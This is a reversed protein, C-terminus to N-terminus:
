GRSAGLGVHVELCVWDGGLGMHAELCTWRGGWWTYRWVPGGMVVGRCTYRWLPRGVLGGWGMHVEMYSWGGVGM